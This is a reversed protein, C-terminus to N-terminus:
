DRVQIVKYAENEYVVPLSTQYAVDAVAYDVGYEEVLISASAKDMLMCTFMNGSCDPDDKRVREFINEIKENYAAAEPSFYYVSHGSQEVEARGTYGRWSFHSPTTMIVFRDDIDTNARAWIGVDRFNTSDGSVQEAGFKYARGMVLCLGFLVLLVTRRGVLPYILVFGFTALSVFYFAGEYKSYLCAGVFIAIAVSSGVVRLISPSLVRQVSLLKPKIFDILTAFHKHQLLFLTCAFIRVFWRFARPDDAFQTHIFINILSFFAVCNGIFFLPVALKAPLFWFRGKENPVAFFALAFFLLAMNPYLQSFHSQAVLVYLGAAVALFRKETILSFLAMGIVPLMFLDFLQTSRTGLFRMLDVQQMQVGLYHVSCLFCVGLVVAILLRLYEFNIARRRIEFYGIIATALLFAGNSELKELKPVIHGNASLIPKLTEGDIEAAGHTRLVVYGITFFGVLGLGVCSKFDKLSLQLFCKDIAERVFRSCKAVLNLAFPLLAYIGLMGIMQLTQSPHIMAAPILLALCWLLRGKLFWYAAFLLIGQALHGAYPQWFLGGYYALNKNTPFWYLLLCVVFFSVLQKKYLNQALVFIGLALLINHLYTFGFFFIKPSINFVKYALAPLWNILSVIGVQAFSQAQLDDKFREPYKYVEAHTLLSDDAMAMILRVDHSSILLATFVSAILIVAAYSWAPLLFNDESAAKFLVGSRAIKAYFGYEL